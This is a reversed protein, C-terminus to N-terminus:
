AGGLGEGFKGAALGTGPTVTLEQMVEVLSPVSRPLPACLPELWLLHQPDVGNALTLGLLFLLPRLAWAGRGLEM